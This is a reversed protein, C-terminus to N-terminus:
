FEYRVQKNAVLLIFPESVRLSFRMEVLEEHCHVLCDQDVDDSQVGIQLLSACTRERRKGMDLSSMASKPETSRVMRAPAVTSFREM